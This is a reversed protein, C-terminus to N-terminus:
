PRFRKDFGHRNPGDSGCFKQKRFMLFIYQSHSIVVSCFFIIPTVAERGCLIHVYLLVFTSSLSLLNQSSLFFFKLFRISPFPVMNSKVISSSLMLHLNRYLFTKYTVYWSSNCDYKLSSRLTISIACTREIKFKPWRTKRVKRADGLHYLPPFNLYNYKMPQYAYPLISITSNSKNSSFSQLVKVIFNQETESTISKLIM